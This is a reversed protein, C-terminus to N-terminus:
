LRYPKAGNVSMGSRSTKGTAVILCAYPMRLLLGEVMPRDAIQVKLRHVRGREREVEAPLRDPAEVVTDDRPGITEIPVLRVASGAVKIHLPLQLVAAGGRAM